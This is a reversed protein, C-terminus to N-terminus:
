SKETLYIVVKNFDAAANIVKKYDEFEDATYAIRKYYEEIEVTLLNGEVSYTSKFSASGDPFAVDFNLSELNSVEYDDPLTIELKRIFERNYDSEVAMTRKKESYMESQPGILEGIKFIIKDGAKESFRITNVTSKIIMPEIGFKDATGNIVEVSAQDNKEMTVMEVLNENVRQQEDDSLQGYSTQLFVSYYGSMHLEFQIEPELPDASLDAKVYHNNGTESHSLPEIFKIQGVASTIDGLEVEKIFLGYNNMFNDEIFGLRFDASSPQLYKDLSPIYFVTSQLYNYAEFEQDFRLRSRNSTLVVQHKIGMLKFANAYLQNFTSGNSAKNKILAKIGTFEPQVYPLIAFNEKVYSELKRIKAEDEMEDTIGIKKLFKKLAKINKKGPSNYVFSHFNKSATGYSALDTTGNFENESLKYIISKLNSSVFSLEEPEFAPMSDLALSWYNKENMTTDLQIEPLGNLSHFDFILKDPCILEFEINYAPITSQFYERNGNYMDSIKQLTQIEVFSGIDLGELAFYKYFYGSEEDEGELIDKEDFEIIEGKSNIVRAIQYVIKDEAASSLYIKNNDEVGAETAIYTVKHRLDFQFFGDDDFYYELVTKDKVIVESIEGKVNPVEFKPDAEWTYDENDIQANLGTGIFLLVFGLVATKTQISKLM